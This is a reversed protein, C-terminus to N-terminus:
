FHLLSCERLSIVRNADSAAPVPLEEPAPTVFTIKFLAPPAAMRRMRFASKVRARAVTCVGRLTWMASVISGGAVYRVTVMSTTDSRETETFEMDIPGATGTRPESVLLRM